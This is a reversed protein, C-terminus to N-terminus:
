FDSGKIGHQSGIAKTLVSVSEKLKDPKMDNTTEAAQVTSALAVLDSVRTRAGMEINRNIVEVYRDATEQSFEVTDGGEITIVAGAEKSRGLADFCRGFV